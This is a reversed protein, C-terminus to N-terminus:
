PLQVRGSLPSSMASNSNNRDILAAILAPFVNIASMSFLKHNCEKGQKKNDKLSLCAQPIPTGGILPFLFEPHQKGYLYDFQFVLL